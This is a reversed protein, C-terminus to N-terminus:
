QILRLQNKWAAPLKQGNPTENRCCGVTARLSLTISTDTTLDPEFLTNELRNRTSCPIAM